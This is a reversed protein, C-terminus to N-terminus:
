KPANQDKKLKELYKLILGDLYNSINKDIFEVIHRDFRMWLGFVLEWDETELAVMLLDLKCADRISLDCMENEEGSFAAEILASTKKIAQILSKNM